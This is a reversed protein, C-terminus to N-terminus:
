EESFVPKEGGLVNSVAKVAPVCGVGFFVANSLMHIIGFPFFGMVLAVLINMNGVYGFVINTVVDYVLTLMMGVVGFFAYVIFGQRRNVSVQEAFGRKLLGGTVGYLSEAFMCAVWIPLSFGLPNLTGYVVWAFLGVSAGVVPGFCFGGVFTIVDMLKVNYLSFLAYNTGIALAVFIAILAVKRSNMITPHIIWGYLVKWVM